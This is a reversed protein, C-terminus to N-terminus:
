LCFSFQTLITSQSELVPCLGRGGAEAPSQTAQRGTYHNSSLIRHRYKGERALHDMPERRKWVTTHRPWTTQRSQGLLWQRNRFDTLRLPPLLLPIRRAGGLGMPSQGSRPRVSGGAGAIAAESADTIAGSPLGTRFWGKEMARVIHSGFASPFSHAQQKASTERTDSVVSERKTVSGGRALPAGLATSERGLRKRTVLVRRNCSSCPARVQACPSTVELLFIKQLHVSHAFLGNEKRWKGEGGRVGQPLFFSM